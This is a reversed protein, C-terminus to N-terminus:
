GKRVPVTATGEDRQPVIIACKALPMPRASTYERLLPAVSPPASLPKRFWLWAWVRFIKSPKFM